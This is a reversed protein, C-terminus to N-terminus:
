VFTPYALTKILFDAVQDCTAVGQIGSFQSEAEKVFQHHIAKSGRLHREEIELICLASENDM